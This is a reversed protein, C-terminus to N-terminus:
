EMKAQYRIKIEDRVKYIKIDGRDDVIKIVAQDKGLEIEVSQAFNEKALIAETQEALFFNDLLQRIKEPEAGAVIVEKRAIERIMEIGAKESPNGTAVYLKNDLEYLPIICYQYLLKEPFARILKSDLIEPKLDIFPIAAQESLLWILERPNLYGLEILIEGLKKKKKKQIELAENLQEENILGSKVLLEGILM